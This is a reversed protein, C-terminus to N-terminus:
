EGHTETQETDASDGSRGTGCSFNSTKATFDRLRRHVKLQVRIPPGGRARIVGAIYALPVMPTYIVGIVTIVANFCPVRGNDRVVAAMVTSSLGLAM